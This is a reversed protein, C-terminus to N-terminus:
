KNAKKRQLVTERLACYKDALCLVATEKFRPPAPNLPFMHKKIMDRETDNLEFDRDANRLATGAHRFGHLRHAPDPTHWDYLFYDHLLAGRVLARQNVKLHLWHVLWLCVLAVCVSHEFVSVSGHQMNEKAIQMGPSKLIDGGHLFLTRLTPRMLKSGRCSVGGQDERACRCRRPLVCRRRDGPTIWRFDQHELRQPEGETIKANYVFLHVFLDPYDHLVDMFLTGVEVTVGIEERCERILAEENTENPETKGGIFEWMGARAKGEPRQGILFQNGERVLAAVVTVSRKNEM